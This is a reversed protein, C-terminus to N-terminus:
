EDCVQTMISLALSLDALLDEPDELGVSIRLLGPPSVVRAEPEISARHEILTETGGLSTARQITGLAGAFAYASVEDKVEVSLVGGFAKMQRCAIDHSPHDELGPYHVVNVDKQSSLFRALILATQSQRAVRVGLTRLGRLTLWCDFPSAVGGVAAQVTRLQQGLFVGRSTLPSATVIGILADSHGALYKTASHLM